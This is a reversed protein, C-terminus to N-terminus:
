NIPSWEFITTGDKGESLLHDGIRNKQNKDKKKTARVAVGIATLAITIGLAKLLKKM